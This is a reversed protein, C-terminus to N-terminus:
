PVNIMIGIVTGAKGIVTGAQAATQLDYPGSHAEM